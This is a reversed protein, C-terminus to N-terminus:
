SRTAKSETGGKNHILHSSGPHAIRHENHIEIRAGIDYLRLITAICYFKIDLLTLGGLEM